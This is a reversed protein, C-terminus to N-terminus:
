KEAWGAGRGGFRTFIGDNRPVDHDIHPNLDSTDFDESYNSVERSSMDLVAQDCSSKFLGRYQYAQTFNKDRNLALYLMYETIAEHYNGPIVYQLFKEIDKDEPVPFYQVWIQGAIWPVSIKGKFTDLYCVRDCQRQTVTLLTYDERGIRLVAVKPSDASVYIISKEEQVAFELFYGDDYGQVVTTFLFTDVGNSVTVNSGGTTYGADNFTVTINEALASLAAPFASLLIAAMTKQAVTQANDGTTISIWFILAAKEDDTTIRGTTTYNFTWTKGTLDLLIFTQTDITNGGIPFDAVCTIQIQEQTEEEQVKTTDITIKERIIGMRTLTLFKKMALLAYQRWDAPEWYADGFEDTQLQCFSILDDITM